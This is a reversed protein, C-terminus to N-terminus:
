AVNEVLGTFLKRGHDSAQWAQTANEPHPMMGLINGRTNTIGAINGTSGNPNAQETVAGTEDCYRFAIRGEDELQKLMAEDAYYNGDGHAVPVRIIDGARYHRMLANVDQEARLCVHKCVFKLHANRMLAGPLLGTEVLMQFGNCVGIIPMGSGAAGVVERMIPSHAAMAGSRLYDGYSFGGPLIILECSEPLQRDKHWVFCPPKGTASEVAMAMDHERNTGPFIIIATQM